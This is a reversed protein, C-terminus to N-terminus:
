VSQVLQFSYANQFVNSHLFPEDFYDALLPVVGLGLILIIIFIIRPSWKM